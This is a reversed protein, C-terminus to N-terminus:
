PKLRRGASSPVVNHIAAGMAAADQPYRCRSQPCKGSILLVQLHTWATAAIALVIRCIRSARARWYVCSRRWTSAPGVAIM